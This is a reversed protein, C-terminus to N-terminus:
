EPILVNLGSKECLNLFAKQIDSEGYLSNVCSPFYVLDPNFTNIGSPIWSRQQPVGQADFPKVWPYSTIASFVLFSIM